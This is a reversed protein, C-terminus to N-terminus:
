AKRAYKRKEIGAIGKEDKIKRAEMMADAMVYANEAVKIVIGDNIVTSVIGNMAFMAFLDRLYENDNM